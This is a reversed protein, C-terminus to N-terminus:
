LSEVFDLVYLVLSSIARRTAHISGRAGVDHVLEVAINPPGGITQPINTRPWMARHMHPESEPLLRYTSIQQAVHSNLEDAARKAQQLAHHKERWVTAAQNVEALKIDVAEAAENHIVVAANYKAQELAIRAELLALMARQVTPWFGNKKATAIEVLAAVRDASERASVLSNISVDDGHSAAQLMRDAVSAAEQWAAKAAHAETALQNRRNLAAAYDREAAEVVAEVNDTM